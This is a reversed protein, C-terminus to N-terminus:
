ARVIHFDYENTASSGAVMQDAQRKGEHATSANRVSVVKWGKAEELANYMIEKPDSKASPVSGFRVYMDLQESNSKSVNKWVASLETTFSLQTNHNIQSEDTSYDVYDPGGLFWLRLWQDQIYTKMGYYPPSTIVLSYNKSIGKFSAKQTSDSQVVTQGDYEVNDFLEPIRTLKRIVVSLVDIKPAKLNKSKWYSVSYDPKSSFTRPMQNSFYAAGEKTKALPGHLCGLMAARLMTTAGTEIRVSLLGERIACIDKLTQPNFAQRFFKTDPIHKVERKLYRKALAIVDYYNCNALKAQAIAVAIPSADIGWAEFGFTRAAYLTTGRGCFPDLIVPIDKKHKRIVKVPYELPFM